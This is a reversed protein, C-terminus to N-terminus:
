SPPVPLIAPFLDARASGILVKLLQDLSTGPRSPFRRSAEPRNKRRHQAMRLVSGACSANPWRVRGSEVACGISCTGLWGSRQVSRSSSLGNANGASALGVSGAAVLLVGACRALLSGFLWIGAVVLIAVEIASTM